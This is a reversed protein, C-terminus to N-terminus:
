IFVNKLLIGYKRECHYFFPDIVCVLTLITNVSIRSRARLTLAFAVSVNDTAASFSGFIFKNEM